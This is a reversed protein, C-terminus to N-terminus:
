RSGIAQELAALSAPVDETGCARAWGCTGPPKVPKAPRRLIDDRLPLLM